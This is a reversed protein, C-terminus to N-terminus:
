ELRMLAQYDTKETSTKPLQDHFSFVDPIMYVPLHQACFGKLAIVSIRGGDRTALHARVKLGLENDPLAVVAAERVDPHRYLCSEIEGLEVRYGRKKVMRDRRGAYIYVGGAEETVIDGTKYWRERPSAAPGGVGVTLYASATQEPLNWYGPTVSVGRICLEGREGKRVQNGDEDVVVAELHSCVVGIPFPDTRDAPITPPLEYFTCVNTETPGYLNFYRPRPLIAHLAKLHVIPFVEGAFLVTRISSLDREPLNGYQVLLSLISPTSYWVTIKTDHILQALKHPDKGIEESILALTAGHKLPTYIDLISLDFHFPAHSSFIDTPVPAFTESCWDVFSTANRQTLMVGKPKGTSGSTYLIYALADPETEVTKTKPARSEADAADLAARLGRGGGAEDIAIMAPRAGEQEMHARLAAEFRSETIVVKVSCNAFIYANRAPPASPDVPVYAAGTKLVGFIAAVTDISKRIYVGVRDGPVVGMAALRDRVRDSLDGLDRYAVSAGGPERVAVREAFRAVSDNLYRQLTM